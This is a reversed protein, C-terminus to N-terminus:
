LARREWCYTFTYRNVSGDIYVGYDLIKRFGCAEHLGISPLNNRHIHSYIRGLEPVELVAEVLARGYGKRRYEPATELAELLWGDRYPELRLASVYRKGETWVFYLAGPTAFFVERLYQYFDQEADLLTIGEEAKELNGEMYVEMLRSFDLEGLKRAMHLM